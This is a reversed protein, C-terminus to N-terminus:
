REGRNYRGVLNNVSEIERQYEDFKLERQGALSKIQQVLQNHRDVARQHLTDNVRVGRRVQSNYGDVKRRYIDLNASLSKIESDMRTIETELTRVRAKGSDIKKSLGTDLPTHV